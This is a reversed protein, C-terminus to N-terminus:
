SLDDADGSDFLPTAAIRSGKKKSKPKLAEAAARQENLILLRALVEDRIDESWRLRYKPKPKKKGILDDDDTEEEDFEPEHSPIPQLDSWGYGDLVARDMAHHLARLKRFDESQVEPNHFSNYTKTLGRKTRAMLSARFEYYERGAVELKPSNRYDAPFPFTEFCDSPTYRLRDELSSAMMRAWIEHVTSQVVAFRAIEEDALVVLSEAPV